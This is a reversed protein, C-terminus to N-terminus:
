EFLQKSIQDFKQWYYKRYKSKKKKMYLDSFLQFKMKYLFFRQYFFM